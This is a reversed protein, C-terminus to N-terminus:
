ESHTHTHRKNKCGKHDVTKEAQAIFVKSALTGDHGLDTPLRDPSIRLSCREVSCCFGQHIAVTLLSWRRKVGM